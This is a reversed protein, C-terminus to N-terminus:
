HSLYQGKPFGLFLLLKDYAANRMQILTYEQEQLRTLWESSLRDFRAELESM